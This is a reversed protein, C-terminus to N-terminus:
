THTATMMGPRVVPTSPPAVQVLDSLVPYTDQSKVALLVVDGDQWDIGHVSLM